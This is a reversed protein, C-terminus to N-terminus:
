KDESQCVLLISFNQVGHLLLCIKGRREKLESNWVIERYMGVLRIVIEPLFLAAKETGMEALHV